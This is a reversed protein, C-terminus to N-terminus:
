VFPSMVRQLLQVLVGTAKQAQQQRIGLLFVAVYLIYPARYSPKPFQKRRLTTLTFLTALHTM